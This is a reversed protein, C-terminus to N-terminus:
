IEGSVGTHPVAGGDRGATHVGVSERGEAGSTRVQSVQIPSQVETGGRLTFGWPSGGKLVVQFPTAGPVRGPEETKECIDEEM